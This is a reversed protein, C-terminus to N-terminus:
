NPLLWHPRRPRRSLHPRQGTAARCTSPLDVRGTREDESVGATGDALELRTYSTGGTGGIEKERFLPRYKVNQKDKAYWIM